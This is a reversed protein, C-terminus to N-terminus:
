GIRRRFTALIAKVDSPVGSPMITVGDGTVMPRDIDASTDKQRYMFAALRICAHKIEDPVEPSWGWSGTITIESDVDTFNWDTETDLRVTWKPHRNRPELRYHDSTIETDDGNTLTTISILDEGWLMLKEGDLDDPGFYKTDTKADFSRGCYGDIVGKSLTLFNALLTDDGTASIGLYSKLESLTAYAM